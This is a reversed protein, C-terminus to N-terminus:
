EWSKAPVLEWSSKMPKFPPSFSATTGSGNLYRDSLVVSLLEASVVASLTADNFLNRVEAVRGDTNIFSPITLLSEEPFDRATVESVVSSSPTAM